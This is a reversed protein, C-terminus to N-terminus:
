KSLALCLFFLRISAGITIPSDGRPCASSPGSAFCHTMQRQGERQPRKNRAVSFIKEVIEAAQRTDYPPFLCELCYM